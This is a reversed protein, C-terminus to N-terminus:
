RIAGRLTGLCYGFTVLFRQLSDIEEASDSCLRQTLRLMM